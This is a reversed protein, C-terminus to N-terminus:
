PQAVTTPPEIAPPFRFGLDVLFRGRPDQTPGYVGLSTGFDYAAVATRGSFEPHAAVVDDFRGQVSTVVEEARESRGLMRGVSRTLDQWPTGYEPVDAPHAVTPAIRALTPYDAETIGGLPALILDPRLAAIKEFELVGGQGLVEPRADGLEDRAWEHTAFPQEGFWERIGVPAVGIALVTDQESYGM